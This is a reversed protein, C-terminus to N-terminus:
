SQWKTTWNWSRWTKQSGCPTPFYLRVKLCRIIPLDSTLQLYAALPMFHTCLPHASPKAGSCLLLASCALLQVNMDYCAVFTYEVGGELRQQLDQKKCESCLDLILKWSSNLIIRVWWQNFFRQSPSNWFSSDLLAPLAIKTTKGEVDHLSVATAM